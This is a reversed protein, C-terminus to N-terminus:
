FYRSLLYLLSVGHLTCVTALLAIPRLALPRITNITAETVASHPMLWIGWSAVFIILYLGELYRGHIEPSWVLTAAAYAELTLFGAGLAIGIWLLRRGNGESASRMLLRALSAGTALSLVISITHPVPVDLWGFGTWFSETLMFDPRNLRMFTLASRAVYWMYQTVSPLHQLQVSPVTPYDVFLSGVASVVFAAALAISSIRAIRRGGAPLGAPLRRRITACCAEAIIAALVGLMVVAHLHIWLATAYGILAPPLDASLTGLLRTWYEEVFLQLSAAFLSAFGIWFICARIISRGFTTVSRSGLLIRGLGLAGIVLCLPIASRSTALALGTGLGLITGAWDVRPGDLILAAVGGAILVYACTLLSYNSVQVAFTQLAPIILLLIGVLHRYSSGGCCVVVFTAFMLAITFLGANLLRLALLTRPTTLGRLLPGVAIWARKMASGRKLEGLPASETWPLTSPHGIDVPRFHEDPRGRIRQYHILLAWRDSDQKIQSANLTDAFTLFHTSEDAAQFPPVLVAYSIGLALAVAGTAVVARFALAVNLEVAEQLHFPLTLTAVFLLLVSASLVMAIWLPSVGVQWMYALLVIRRVKLGALHTVYRGALVAPPGIRGAVNGVTLASRPPHGPPQLVWVSIRSRKAIRVTLKLSGTPSGVLPSCGLGRIFPVTATDVLRASHPTHYVCPTGTIALSGELLQVRSRGPTGFVIRVEDDILTSVDGIQLPLVYVPPAPGSTELLPVRSGPWEFGPDGIPKDLIDSVQTALTVALAAAFSGSLLISWLLRKLLTRRRPVEVPHARVEESVLLSM